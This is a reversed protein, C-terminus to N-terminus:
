SIVALDFEAPVTMINGYPVFVWWDNCYGPNSGVNVNLRNFACAQPQGDSGQAWQGTTKGRVPGDNAMYVFYHNVGLDLTRGAANNVHFNTFIKMGKVGNLTVNHEFWVNDIVATQALLLRPFAISLLLIASVFKRM